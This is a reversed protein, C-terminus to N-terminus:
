KYTHPLPLDDQVDPVEDSTFELNEMSKKYYDSEKWAKYYDIGYFDIINNICNCVLDILLRDYDCTDDYKFYPGDCDEGGDFFTTERLLFLLRYYADDTHYNNLGKFFEYAFNKNEM